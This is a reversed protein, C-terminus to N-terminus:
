RQENLKTIRENYQRILLNLEGIKNNHIQITQELRIRSSNAEFIAQELKKISAVYDDIHKDLSKIKSQYKKKLLTITKMQKAYFEKFGKQLNDVYGKIQKKMDIDLKSKEVMLELLETLKEERLKEGEIVANVSEEFERDERKGKRKKRLDEFHEPTGIIGLLSGRPEEKAEALKKMWELVKKDEKTM